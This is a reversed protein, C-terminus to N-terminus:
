RAANQNLVSSPDTAGFIHSSNIAPTCFQWMTFFAFGLSSNFKVGLQKM